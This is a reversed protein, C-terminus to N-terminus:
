RNGKANFSFLRIKIMDKIVGSFNRPLVSTSRGHARRRTEIPIEKIRLKKKHLKLIVEVPLFPSTSKLEMDEIDKKRVLRFACSLDKYPHLYLFNLIRNFTWSVLRRTFSNGNKRRYTIVADYDNLHEIMDNFYNVDYQDDGDTFLILDFKNANAFGTKLAQAYGLNRPHHIVKLKRYKATLSDLVRGTHDPSGDNIVVMEYDECFLPLVKAAKDIVKEINDADYYAPCFFSVGKIKKM